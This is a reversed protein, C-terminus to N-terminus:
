AERGERIANQFSIWEDETLDVTVLREPEFLRANPDGLFQELDFPEGTRTPRIERIFVRGWQGGKGIRGTGTVEVFRNALERMTEDLAPDFCLVVHRGAVRHLQATREKWNVEKLWGELAAEERDPRSQRSKELPELAMRHRNGSSDGLFVRLDPPLSRRVEHLPATVSGPLRSAEARDSDLLAELAREGHNALSLEQGERSGLAAEFVLSGRQVSRVRLVSQRRILPPIAGSGEGCGAFHGALRHLTEQVGRFTKTLCDLPVGQHEVEPGEFTITLLKTARM